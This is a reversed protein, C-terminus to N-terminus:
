SRRDRSGGASVARVAVETQNVGPQPLNVSAWGTNRDLPWGGDGSSDADDRALSVEVGEVGFNALAVEPVSKAV